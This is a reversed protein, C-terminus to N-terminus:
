STAAEMFTQDKADTYFKIDRVVCALNDSGSGVRHGVALLDSGSAYGSASLAPTGIQTGDLYTARSPSGGDEWMVGLKYQTNAVYGLLITKTGTSADRTLISTTNAWIYRSSSNNGLAYDSSSTPQLLRLTVVLSALLPPPQYDYTLLDANRTTPTGATPIWSSAFSGPELNYEYESNIANQTLTGSDLTLTVTGVVSLNFTIPSGTTAQGFGTGTATGAAVTIAANSSVSLTWDGTGGATLDLTDAGGTLDDTTDAYNTRQTENLYGESNAHETWDNEANRTSGKFRAEGSAVLIVAGSSDQVTAATTRIFSPTAGGAVDTLGAVLPTNFGLSAYRYPNIINSM